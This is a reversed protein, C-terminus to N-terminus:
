NFFIFRILQSSNGRFDGSFWLFDPILFEMFVFNELETDIEQNPLHNTELM